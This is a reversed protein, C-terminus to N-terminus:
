AILDREPPAVHIRGQQGYSAALDREASQPAVPWAYGQSRIQAAIIEKAGEGVAALYRTYPRQELLLIMAYRIVPTTIVVTTRRHAPHGLRQAAPAQRRAPWSSACRMMALALWPTESFITRRDRFM